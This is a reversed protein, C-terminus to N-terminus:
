PTKDWVDLEDKEWVRCANVAEFSVFAANKRMGRNDEVFLM